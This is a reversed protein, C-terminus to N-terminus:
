RQKDKPDGFEFPDSFVNVSIAEGLVYCTEPGNSGKSVVTCAGAVDPYPNYAVQADQGRPKPLQGSKSERGDILRKTSPTMRFQGIYITRGSRGVVTIQLMKKKGKPDRRDPVWERATYNGSFHKPGALAVSGQGVLTLIAFGMIFVTRTIM